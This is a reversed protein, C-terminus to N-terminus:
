SRPYSPEIMRSELRVERLEGVERLENIEIMAAGPTAITSHHLTPGQVLPGIVNARLLKEFYQVFEYRRVDVMTTLRVACDCRERRDVKSAAADSTARRM